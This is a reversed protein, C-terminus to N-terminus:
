ALVKEKEEMRDQTTLIFEMSKNPHQYKLNLITIFNRIIDRVTGGEVSQMKGYELRLYSIFEDHGIKPEYDYLDAHISTIKEVLVYLEGPNLPKIHIIPATMDVM